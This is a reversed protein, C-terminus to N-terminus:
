GLAPEGFELSNIDWGFDLFIQFITNDPYSTAGLFAPETIRAGYFLLPMVANGGGGEKHSTALM